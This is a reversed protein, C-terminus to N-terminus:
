TSVMRLDSGLGAQDTSNMARGCGRGICRESEPQSAKVGRESSITSAKHVGDGGVVSNEVAVLHDGKKHVGLVDQGENLVAITRDLVELHLEHSTREVLVAQRSLEGVEGHGM